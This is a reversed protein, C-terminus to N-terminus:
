KREHNEELFHQVIEETETNFVIIGEKQDDLQGAAKGEKTWVASCGISVFNDCEGLCNAMLVPMSYRKAVEPYHAFAKNIGNQSKAVSALYITGGLKSAKEAHETQLSEFCIAPIIKQNELTIIVQENGNEFYPFEDEHLQQKSYSVRQQNPQFILMSIQNGTATKTPAGVGITINRLDSIKQFVDFREDEKQTALEEALEPEYGTLSLEPFFVATAKLSGALEILRIHKEINAPIDGKLPKIQAVAINM